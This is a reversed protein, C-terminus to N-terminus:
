EEFIDHDESAVLRKSVMETLNGETKQSSYTEVKNEETSKKGAWKLYSPYERILIGLDYNVKDEGILKRFNKDLLSKKRPFMDLLHEPPIGKSMKRFKGLFVQEMKTYFRTTFGAIEYTKMLYQYLHNKYVLNDIRHQSDLLLDGVLIEIDSETFKGRKREGLKKKYCNIHYAVDSKYIIDGIEKEFTIFNKCQGCKRTTTFEFLLKNDM